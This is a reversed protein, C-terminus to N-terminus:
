RTLERDEILRRLAQLTPPPLAISDTSFASGAPSRQM